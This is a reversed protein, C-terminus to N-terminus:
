DRPLPRITGAVVYVVANRRARRDERVLFGGIGVAALLSSVANIVLIKTV